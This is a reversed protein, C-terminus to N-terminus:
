EVPPIIDPDCECVFHRGDNCGEDNWRGSTTTRMEVCDEAAGLGGNNPEGSQWHTYPVPAGTVWAWTNEEDIDNLGIWSYGSILSRVYTNEDGDDIVVLHAGDLECNGRAQSWTRTMNYYRYRRVTAPNPAYLPDTACPPLAADPLAADPLAADPGSADIMGDPGSADAQANSDNAADGPSQAPLGSPDFSCATILLWAGLCLVRSM